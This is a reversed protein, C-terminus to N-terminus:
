EESKNGWAVTAGHAQLIQAVTASSMGAMYARKVVQSAEAQSVADKLLDAKECTIKELTEEFTTLGREVNLVAFMLIYVLRLRWAFDTMNPFAGGSELFRVDSQFSKPLSMFVEDVANSQLVYDIRHAYKNRIGALKRLSTEIDAPLARNSLVLALLPDFTLRLKDFKEKDSLTDRIIERLNYEVYTQGVVVAVLDDVNAMASLFRGDHPSKKPRNEKM